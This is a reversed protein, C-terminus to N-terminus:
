GAFEDLQFDQAGILDVQDVNDDVVGSWENVETNVDTVTREGVALEANMVPDLDNHEYDLIHGFEHTITSLLDVSNEDILGDLSWGYGAADDDLTITSGDTEALITGGLDDIEIKADALEQLKDSDIGM